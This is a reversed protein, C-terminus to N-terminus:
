AAQEGEPGNLLHKAHALGIINPVQSQGLCSGQGVMDPHVAPALGYVKHFLM